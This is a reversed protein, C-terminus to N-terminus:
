YYMYLYITHIHPNSTKTSRHIYLHDKSSASELVAPTISQFVKQDEDPTGPECM